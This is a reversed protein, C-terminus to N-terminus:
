GFDLRRGDVERIAVVFVTRKQKTVGKVAAQPGSAGM